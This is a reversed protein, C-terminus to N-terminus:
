GYITRVKKGNLNLPTYSVIGVVEYRLALEYVKRPTLTKYQWLVQRFLKWGDRYSGKPAGWSTFLSGYRAGEQYLYITQRDYFIIEGGDIKKVTICDTKFFREGKKMGM